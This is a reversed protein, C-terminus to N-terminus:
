QGLGEWAKTSRQLSREEAAKAPFPIVTGAQRHALVKALDGDAFRGAEACAALAHEVDDPGHLKALDVAEALKRRVRTAGVAAARVLWREAGPGLALFEAEEASRARPKRELAGPPRPPYHEERISPRCPTTLPHRAVERPGQPGDAHM